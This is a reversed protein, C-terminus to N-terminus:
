SFTNPPADKTVPLLPRHQSDRLGLAQLVLYQSKRLMSDFHCSIEHGLLPLNPPEEVVRTEPGTPPLGDPISLKNSPDLNVPTRPCPSISLM